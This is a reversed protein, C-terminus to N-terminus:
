GIAAWWCGDDRGLVSVRGALGTPLWGTLRELEKGAVILATGPDAALNDLSVPIDVASFDVDSVPRGATEQSVRVARWGEHGEWALEEVPLVAMFCDSTTHPSVLAITGGFRRALTSLRLPHELRKPEARVREYRVGLRRAVREVTAHVGDELAAVVLEVDRSRNLADPLALQAVTLGPLEAIEPSLRDPMTLEVLVDCGWASVDVEANVRSAVLDSLPQWYVTRPRARTVPGAWWPTGPVVDAWCVHIM